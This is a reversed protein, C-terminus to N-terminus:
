TSIDSAASQQVLATAAKKQNIQSGDGNFRRV